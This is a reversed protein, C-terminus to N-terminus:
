RAGGALPFLALQGEAHCQAVEAHWDGQSLALDAHSARADPALVRCISCWWRYWTLVSAHAPIGIGSFVGAKQEPVAVIM